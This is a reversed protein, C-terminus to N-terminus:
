SRASSGSSQPYVSSFKVPRQHLGLPSVASSSTVVTQSWNKYWGHDFSIMLSLSLCLFSPFASFVESSPLTELVSSYFIRAQLTLFPEFKERSSLCPIPYKLEGKPTCTAHEVLATNTVSVLGALSVHDFSRFDRQIPQRWLVPGTTTSMTVLSRWSYCQLLSSPCPLTPHHHHTEHVLM